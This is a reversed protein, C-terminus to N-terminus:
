DTYQIHFRVSSHTMLNQAHSFRNSSISKAIIPPQLHQRFLMINRWGGYNYHTTRALTEYNIAMRAENLRVRKCTHLVNM